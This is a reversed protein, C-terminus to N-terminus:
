EMKLKAQLHRENALGRCSPTAFGVSCLGRIFGRSSRSVLRLLAIIRKGSERPASKAAIQLAAARKFSSCIWSAKWNEGQKARTKQM